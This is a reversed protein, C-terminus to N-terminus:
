AREHKARLLDAYYQAFQYEQEFDRASLLLYKWRSIRVFIHSRTKDIRRIKAWPVTTVKRGDDESFADDGITFTKPGVCGKRLLNVSAVLVILVGSVLWIALMGAMFMVVVLLINMAVSREAGQTTRLVIDAAIWAAILISVVWSLPSRLNIWWNLALIDRWKTVSKM